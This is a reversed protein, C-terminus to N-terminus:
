PAVLASALVTEIVKAPAAYEPHSRMLAAADHLHEMARIYPEAEIRVHKSLIFKDRAIRGLELARHVRKNCSCPASTNVLGCYSQTFAEIKRRARSLRQRYAAESLALIHAAEESKLDFVEGLIYAIRDARELCTLMALTCGLKVEEALGAEDSQLASLGDALDEAFAEFTLGLAEVRSKRRDLLHNVAIRYAWTSPAAEERYTGLRTIIKILIEQTADEADAVNATMRLALRYAQPSIAGVLSQLADRNGERARMVLQLLASEDRQTGDVGSNVTSM